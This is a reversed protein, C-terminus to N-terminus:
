CEGPVCAGTADQAASRCPRDITLSYFIFTASSIGPAAATSQYCKSDHMYRADSAAEVKYHSLFCSYSGVLRWKVTPPDVTCCSWRSELRAQVFHAYVEASITVALLIIMTFAVLIMIVVAEESSHLGLFRYALEPSGQSDAAIDEYLRVMLGAIFICIFLLQTGAAMAYDLTRQYPRCALIAVLFSVSVVLAAILRVFKLQADILLLWGTLITRQVLSLVEWFYFSKRYDRHLFATSHLLPSESAEDLLMYRCPLLLAVYLLVMGVPWLLVLVWSIVLLENHADSGCQVTLDEALFSLEEVNTYAYPM